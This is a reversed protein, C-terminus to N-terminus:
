MTSNATKRGMFRSRQEGPPVITGYAGSPDTLSPELIWASLYEAGADEDLQVIRPPPSSTSLITKIKDTGAGDGDLFPVADPRFQSIEIFTEAVASDSTPILCM